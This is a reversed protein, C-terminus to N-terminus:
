RTLPDAPGGAALTALARRATANGIQELAYIARVSLRERRALDFDKARALLAEVRRAVEPPPKQALAQKLAPVAAPGLAGLEQQAKRRVAFVKDDLDAIMGAIRKCEAAAWGLQE